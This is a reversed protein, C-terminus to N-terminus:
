YIKLHHHQNSGRHAFFTTIGMCLSLNYNVESRRDQVVHTWDMSEQIIEMLVMKMNIEWTNRPRGLPRKREPKGVLIKHVNRMEGTCAVHGVCRM